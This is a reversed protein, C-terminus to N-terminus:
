PFDKVPDFLDVWFDVFYSYNVTGSGAVANHTFAWMWGTILKSPNAASTGTWSPDAFYELPQTFLKSLRWTKSLTCSTDSGSGSANLTKFKCNKNGQWMLAESRDLTGIATTQNPTTAGIGVRMPVGAFNDFRVTLKASVVRFRSYMTTYPEFGPVAVNGLSPSVDFLGNLNTPNSAFGTVATTALSGNNDDIYRLHVRKKNSWMLPIRSTRRKISGYSRRRGYKGYRKRSVVRRTRRYSRRRKIGARPM